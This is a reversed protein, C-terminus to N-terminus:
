HIVNLLLRLVRLLGVTGLPRGGYGRVHLWQRDCPDYESRLPLIRTHKACRKKVSSNKGYTM